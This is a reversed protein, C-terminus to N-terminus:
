YSIAKSHNNKLSRLMRIGFVKMCVYRALESIAYGNITSNPGFSVDSGVHVDDKFQIHGSITENGFVHVYDDELDYGNVKHTAALNEKFHVHPSTVVSM